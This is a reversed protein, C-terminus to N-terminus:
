IISLAWAQEHRLDAELEALKKKHLRTKEEFDLKKYADFADRIANCAEDYGDGKDFARLLKKSNLRYIYMRIYEGVHQPFTERCGIAEAIVYDDFEFYSCNPTGVLIVKPDHVMLMDDCARLYLFCTM